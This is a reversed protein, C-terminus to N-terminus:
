GKFTRQKRGVERWNWCARFVKRIVRRTAMPYIAACKSISGEKGDWDSPDPYRLHFRFLNSVSNRIDEESGWSKSASSNDEVTIPSVIEKVDSTKQLTIMPPNANIDPPLKRKYRHRTIIDAMTLKESDPTVAPNTPVENEQPAQTATAETAVRLRKRRKGDHKELYLM